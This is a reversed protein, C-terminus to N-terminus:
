RDRKEERANADDARGLKRYELGTLIVGIALLGCVAVAYYGIELTTM